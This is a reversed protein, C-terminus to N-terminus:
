PRVCLGVKCGNLLTGRFLRGSFNAHTHGNGTGPCFLSGQDVEQDLLL